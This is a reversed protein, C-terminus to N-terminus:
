FRTDSKLKMTVDPTLEYGFAVIWNNNIITLTPRIAIPGYELRSTEMFIKLAYPMVMVDNERYM